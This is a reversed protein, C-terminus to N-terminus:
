TARPPRARRRGTAAAPRRSHRGRAGCDGQGGARAGRHAAGARPRPRRPGSSGGEPPARGSPPAARPRKRPPPARPQRQRTRTRPTERAPTHQCEPNGQTPDNPDPATLTSPEKTGASHETGTVPPPHAPQGSGPDPATRDGAGSHGESFSLGLPFKGPRGRPPQPAAPARTPPAARTDADGPGSPGSLTGNPTPARRAGQAPTKPAGKPASARRPSLPRRPVRRPLGRAGGRM